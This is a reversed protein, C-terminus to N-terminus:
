RLSALMQAVDDADANSSFANPERALIAPGDFFPNERLTGDLIVLPHTRLATHISQPPHNRLDYQCVSRVHTDKFLLDKTLEFHCLDEVTLALGPQWPQERLLRGAGFRELMAQVIRWLEGAQRVPRFDATPAAIAKLLLAGRDQEGQVDIGYAQLEIAWDDVTEPAVTLSCFENNKLGQRCFPLLVDKQDL